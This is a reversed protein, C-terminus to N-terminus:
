LHICVMNTKGPRPEESLILKKRNADKQRYIEHHKRQEVDLDAHGIVNIIIRLWEPLHLISGSLLKSKCKGLLWPYQANIQKAAM